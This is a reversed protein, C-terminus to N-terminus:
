RWHRCFTEGASVFSPSVPTAVSPRTALPPTHVKRTVPGRKSFTGTSCFSIRNTHVGFTTEAVIYNPDNRFFVTQLSEQFPPLGPVDLRSLKDLAYNFAKVLPLYMSVEGKADM